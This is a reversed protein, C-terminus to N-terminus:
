QTGCEYLCKASCGDGDYLNADDCREQTAVCDSCDDTQCHNWCLHLLGDGCRPRRCARTCNGRLNDNLAGEDCEEGRERVGNGCHCASPSAATAVFVVFVSM